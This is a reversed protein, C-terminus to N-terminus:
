AVVLQVCWNTLTGSASDSEGEAMLTWEGATGEYAARGLTEAPQVPCSSCAFSAPPYAEGSDVFLADLDEAGDETAPTGDYLLYATGDPAGLVIRSWDGLAPTELQVLVRVEDADLADPVDIVSTPVGDLAEIDEDNCYEHIVPDAPDGALSTPLAFWVSSLSTMAVLLARPLGVM